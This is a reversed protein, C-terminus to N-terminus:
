NNKLRRIVVLNMKTNMQISVTAPSEELGGIREEFEITSPPAVPRITQYSCGDEDNEDEDNEDEDNAQTEENEKGNEKEAFFDM